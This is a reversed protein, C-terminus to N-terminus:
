NFLTLESRADDLERMRMPTDQLGYLCICDHLRSAFKEMERDIEDQSTNVNLEDAEQCESIIVGSFLGHLGYQRAFQDAHCWIAICTKDRLFQVHSSNVILREYQGNDRPTSFLGYPNGHGLMMITDDGRIARIVDMNTNKETILTKIDERQEYLRSLFRTTPDNPHIITM